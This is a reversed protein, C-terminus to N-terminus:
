SGAPPMTEVNPIGEKDLWDRLRVVAGHNPAVSQDTLVIHVEVRERKKHLLERVEDLTRPPGTRDILYYRGDDAYNAGGLLEIEIVEARALRPQPRGQKRAPATEPSSAGDSGGKGPGGGRGPGWGIGLGGAGLPLLYFALLGATVAGLMKGWPLVWGPTPRRFSLRYVLRTLPGSAYWGLLGGVLGAIFRIALFINETLHLQGLLNM